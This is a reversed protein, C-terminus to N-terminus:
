LVSSAKVFPLFDESFGKSTNLRVEVIASFHLDVIERSCNFLISNLHELRM